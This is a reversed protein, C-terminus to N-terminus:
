TEHCIQIKSLQTLWQKAEEMEKQKKLKAEAKKKSLEPDENKAKKARRKAADRRSIM